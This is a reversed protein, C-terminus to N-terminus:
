QRDTVVAAAWSVGCTGDDSSSQAYHCFDIRFDEEETLATAHLWVMLLNRGSIPHDTSSLFTNLGAADRREIYGM